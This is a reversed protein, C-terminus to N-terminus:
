ASGISQIKFWLSGSPPRLTKKNIILWHENEFVRGRYFLVNILNTKISKVMYPYSMLSTELDEIWFSKIQETVKTQGTQNFISLTDWKETIIYLNYTIYLKNPFNSPFVTITSFELKKDYDESVMIRKPITTNLLLVSDKVEWDGYSYDDGVTNKLSCGLCYWFTSDSNLSLFETKGDITDTFIGSIDEQSYATNCIGL